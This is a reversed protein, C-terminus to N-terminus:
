LIQGEEGEIEHNNEGKTIFNHKNLEGVTLNKLDKANQQVHKQILEDNKVQVEIEKHENGKTVFNDKKIYGKTYNKSDHANRQLEVAMLHDNDINEQNDINASESKVNNDRINTENIAQHSKSYLCYLVVIM